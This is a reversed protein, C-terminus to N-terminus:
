VNGAVFLTLPVLSQFPLRPGYHQIRVIDAPITLNRIERPSELPIGVTSLNSFERKFGLTRSDTIAPPLDLHCMSPVYGLSRLIADDDNSDSTTPPLTRDGEAM